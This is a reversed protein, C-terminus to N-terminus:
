ALFDRGTYACLYSIKNKAVKHPTYHPSFEVLLYGYGNFKRNNSIYSISFTKILHNCKYCNEPDDDYYRGHSSGHPNYTFNVPFVLVGYLFIETLVYIGIVVVM